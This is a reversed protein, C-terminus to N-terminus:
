TVPVFDAYEREMRKALQKTAQEWERRVEDKRFMLPVRFLRRDLGRAQSLAPLDSFDPEIETIGDADVLHLTPWKNQCIVRVERRGGRWLAYSYNEPEEAFMLRPEEFGWDELFSFSSILSKM